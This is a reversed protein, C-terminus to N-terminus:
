VDRWGFSNVVGANKLVWGREVAGRVMCYIMLKVTLYTNLNLEAKFAVNM